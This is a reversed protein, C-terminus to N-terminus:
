SGALLQAALVHKCPGRAGQHKSFWPCSCRGGSESLRVFHPVDSGMARYEGQGLSEIQGTELLKRAAVLRPQLSEVKALEFPLERHFYRGETADFGALGRAGLVCLARRVEDPGVSLEGALREVDVGSDWNLSARVQLLLESCLPRGLDELVQGEGSFGRSLEPSLLLTVRGAKSHAEWASVGSADDVWVRLGDAQRLWPELILVRHTGSLPVSGRGSQQSLRVTGGSSVIHNTGKGPVRPFSRLLALGQSAKLEFRLQLQAQYAQAESFSAIWRVPLKVKKEVVRHGSVELAVEQAGVSFLLRDQRKVGLLSRRMPENFDVNTTGRGQCQGDFSSAPLDVRAYVGCCGSFGEARLVRENSTFVPDSMVPRPLFFHTRVVQTLVLLQAALHEPYLAQGTFFYPHGQATASTALSLRQGQLESPYAYRYVFDLAAAM